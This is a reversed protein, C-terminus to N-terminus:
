DTLSIWSVVFLRSRGEKATKEGRERAGSSREDRRELDAAEMEMGSAAKKEEGIEQKKKGERNEERRGSGDAHETDFPDSSGQLTSCHKSFLRNTEHGMAEVAKQTTQLGSM